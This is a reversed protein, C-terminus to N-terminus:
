AVEVCSEHLVLSMVSGSSVVMSVVSATFGFDWGGGGGM